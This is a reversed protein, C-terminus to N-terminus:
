HHSTWSVYSCPCLCSFVGALYERANHCLHRSLAALWCSTLPEQENDSLPVYSADSGGEGGGGGGVDELSAQLVAQLMAADDRDEVAQLVGQHMAMDSKDGVGELSARLARQLMTAEGVEFDTTTDYDCQHRLMLHTLFDKSLYSPNGWPMARCIPCVAAIPKTKTGHTHEKSCHDLLGQRSLNAKECIPCEFTSRNVTPTPAVVDKSFTSSSRSRMSELHTCNHEEAKLLLVEAGCGCTITTDRLRRALASNVDIARRQPSAPLALSCVM